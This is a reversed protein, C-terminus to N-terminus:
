SDTSSSRNPLLTHTPLPNSLSTPLTGQQSRLLQHLLLHGTRLNRTVIITRRRNSVRGSYELTIMISTPSRSHTRIDLTLFPQDSVSFSLSGAAISHISRPRTSLLTLIVDLHISVRVFRVLSTDCVSPGLDLKGMEALSPVRDALCFSLVTM